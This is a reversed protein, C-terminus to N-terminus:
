EPIVTGRLRLTVQESKGDGNRLRLRVDKELEGKQGKPSFTVKVTAKEGPKVPKKPYEPTTCGCSATATLIAVPSTGTVEMTFEHVVAKGSSKVTGFDYVLEPFSAGVKQGPIRRAQASVACMVIAVAM